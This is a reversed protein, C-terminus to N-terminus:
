FSPQWYLDDFFNGIFIFIVRLVYHHHRINFCTKDDDGDSNEEYDDKEIM